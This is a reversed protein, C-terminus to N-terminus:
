QTDTNEEANLDRPSLRSSPEEGNMSDWVCEVTHFTFQSLSTLTSLIPITLYLSECPANSNILYNLSPTPHIQKSHAHIIHRDHASKTTSDLRYKELSSISASAKPYNIVNFQLLLRHNRNVLGGASTETERRQASDGRENPDEGACTDNASAIGAVVMDGMQGRAMGCWILLFLLECNNASM